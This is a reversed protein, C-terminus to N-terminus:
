RSGKGSFNRRYKIDAVEYGDLGYWMAEFTHPDINFEDPIIDGDKNTQYTLESLERITNPCEDSVYINRFRKMKKINQLRSGPGKKAGRMRYGTQNYFAITKPEASDAIILEGSDKLTMFEDDVATEDDTMQNKYYEWYVYLDKNKDDIAMRVVANYSNVFGFDMGVRYFRQPISGVKAMVDEHEMVKFQPLVRTGSIGFQGLRAVRYLDPDYEKMEELTDIYSDPLFANDDATSHHYYTDATKIEKEKYLRTDDLTVRINQIDTNDIFFHKYVWNSKSTPNTSIIFHVLLKPHRARGLLEKFGEYTIESAEELWILSVNHISKLKEPKDMGKFIIESGNPYNIKMPSSTYTVLSDLGMDSIIDVMLDFVSDRMTDYVQRVILVKRKEQLLKLHIKLAIHYSKGSGYGGVMVYNRYNWDLLIDKFAPSVEKTIKM